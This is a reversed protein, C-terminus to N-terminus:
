SDAQFSDGARKFPFKNQGYGLYPRVLSVSVMRLEVLCLDIDRSKGKWRVKVIYQFDPKAPPSKIWSVREFLDHERRTYEYGVVTARVPKGEDGDFEVLSNEPFWGAIVSIVPHEKPLTYSM